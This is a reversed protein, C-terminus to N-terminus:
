RTRLTRCSSGADQCPEAKVNRLVVGPRSEIAHEGHPGLEIRAREGLAQDRRAGHEDVALRTRLAEPEFTPLLDVDLDGLRDLQLCLLEVDRDDPLVLVEEDDVLGGAEDNVGGSRRPRAREDLAQERVSGLAPVVVVPGPDDM